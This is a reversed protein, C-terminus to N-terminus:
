AKVGFMPPLPQTRFKPARYDHPDLCSDYFAKDMEFWDSNNVGRKVSATDSVPFASIIKIWRSSTRAIERVESCVESLDQDQSFLVVVDLQNRLTMRVIDLAIRIDIGKEQATDITHETGDSLVVRETRYRIPRKTVLIGSRTMALLRNTWYGHWLESKEINPTGTYFRVGCDRFGFHKCIAAHLKAPDYNPHHYGFAEKAHRFLNQGDFFAIARKERPEEM